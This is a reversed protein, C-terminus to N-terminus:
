LFWSVSIKVQCLYLIIIELKSLHTTPLEWFKFQQLVKLLMNMLIHTNGKM